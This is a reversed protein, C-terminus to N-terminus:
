SARMQTENVRSKVNPAAIRTTTAATTTRHNQLRQKDVTNKYFYNKKDYSLVGDPRPAIFYAGCLLHSCLLFIHCFFLFFVVSRIM